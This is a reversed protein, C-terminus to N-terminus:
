SQNQISDISKERFMISGYTLAPHSRFVAACRIRMGSQLCIGDSSMSSTSGIEQESLAIVRKEFELVYVFASERSWPGFDLGLRIPMDGVSM